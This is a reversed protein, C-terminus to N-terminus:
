KSCVKQFLPMERVDSSGIEIERCKQAHLFRAEILDLAKDVATLLRLLRPRFSPLKNARDQLQSKVPLYRQQADWWPAFLAEIEDIYLDAQRLSWTEATYRWIDELDRDTQPTLVVRRGEAEPM